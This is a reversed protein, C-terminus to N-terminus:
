FKRFDSGTIKLKTHLKGRSKYKLSQGWLSGAGSAEQWSGKGGQEGPPPLPLPDWLQKLHNEPLTPSLPSM